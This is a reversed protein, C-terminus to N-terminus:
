TCAISNSTSPTHEPNIPKETVTKNQENATHNQSGNQINVEFVNSSNSDENYSLVSVEDTQLNFLFYYYNNTRVPRGM